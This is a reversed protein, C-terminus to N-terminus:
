GVNTQRFIGYMATVLAFAVFGVLLGMFVIVIPEFLDTIRKLRYDLEREYFSASAALQDALTGTTEGVRIMQNAAPPFLKTATIPRALGDGRIMEDRATQLHTQYVRNNTGEIAVAFADPLPVGARVMAGLIRCFREVIMFRVVNGVPPVRLLLADRKARGAETRLVLLLLLAAAASAGLMAYWWHGVFHTVALLFRTAWPLDARLEKFFSEFKPLVFTALIVITIVAMGCIVAPYTLASKIKRRSDIDRELYLALQDLVDDLRGTFEASRLMSVYYEPFVDAHRAAAAAFRAGGRLAQSMDELVGALRRDSEQAIVNLADLVPIGSRIFSSCQRSFNMLETPRVKRRRGEFQWWRVRRGGARRTRRAGALKDASKDAQKDAPPPVAAPPDSAAPARLEAV